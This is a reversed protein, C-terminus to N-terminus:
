RSCRGGSSLAGLLSNRGACTILWTFSELGEARGHWSLTTPSWAAQAQGFTTSLREAGALTGFMFEGDPYYGNYDFVGHNIGERWDVTRAGWLADPGFLNNAFVFDHQTISSLLNLAREPSVFTDHYIM